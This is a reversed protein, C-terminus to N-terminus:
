PVQSALEPHLLRVLEALGDIQRPGPRSILDDNIPFVKGNKVADLKEWGTRQAVSEPTVGWNADGLLIVDPNQVLLEELSIQAWEGQLSAGVNVGGALTILQDIFTGPGSTWPKAPDQSADLEYFVKPKSSAKAVVALIKQQRDKLSAVLEQAENEHGTIKGVLEINAYMDELTIPNPVVVLTFGLDKLAQLTEPATLPSALVLDPQLSVMKETDYKGMSGGVSPLAQAEQPYNSFEERAIVQSGAGVAFLLETNSPALSIIKQAPAELTLTGGMGDPVEITPAVTVTFTPTPAITATAVATATPALTPTPTPTAAPACASLSVLFLALVLLLSQFRKM